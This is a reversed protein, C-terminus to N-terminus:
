VKSTISSIFYGNGGLIWFQTKQAKITPNAILTGINGNWVQSGSAWTSAGVAPETIRAPTRSFIPVYPKTRKESGNKGCTMVLVVEVKMPAVTRPQIIPREMTPM